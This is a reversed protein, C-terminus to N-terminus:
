EGREWGGEEEEEEKEEEPLSREESVSWVFVNKRREIGAQL